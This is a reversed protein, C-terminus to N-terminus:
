NEELVSYELVPSPVNINRGKPVIEFVFQKGKLNLLCSRKHSINFFYNKDDVTIKLDIITSGGFVINKLLKYEAPSAFDILGSKWIKNEGNSDASLLSLFNGEVVLVYEKGDYKVKVM